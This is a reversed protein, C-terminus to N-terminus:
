FKIACSININDNQMDFEGFSFGWGLSVQIKKNLELGARFGLGADFPTYDMDDVMYDDQKFVYDVQDDWKSKGYIGYAIYPGLGGLLSLKENVEFKYGINIPVEFYITNLKSHFHFLSVQGGKQVILASADLYVGNAIMPLNWESKVGIQLGVKRSSQNTGVIFKSMSLGATYYWKNPNNAQLGVSSILITLLIVTLIKKM